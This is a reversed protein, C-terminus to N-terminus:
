EGKPPEPLPMWHTVKHSEPIGAWLMGNKGYRGSVRFAKGGMFDCCVLVPECINPLRDKVSIWEQVTVGNAINPCYNLQQNYDKIWECYMLADILEEQLYEIRTIIEAPNDEIGKGYALIGKARQKEAIACVNEWYPNEDAKDLINYIASMDALSLKVSKAIDAILKDEDVMKM